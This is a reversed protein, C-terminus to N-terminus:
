VWHETIWPAPLTSHHPKTGTFGEIAQDPNPKGHFAIVSAEACYKPALWKNLPYTRQCHRKFSRVWEDPWQSDKPTVPGTHNLVVDLLVRIGRKHAKDVMEKLEDMTGYNPDINTWDRAWYGHYGYTKGWGEDTFSHIQEIPPTIWLVNVGLDEFYGEEIKMTIGKLDGGMFSRLPGGDQKRGLPTDNMPDGNNFRDTLMFYVTANEWIFPPQNSKEEGIQEEQRNSTCSIILFLVIILVQKM